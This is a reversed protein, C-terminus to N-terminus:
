MSLAVNAAFNQVVLNTMNHCLPHKTGLDKIMTNVRRLLDDVRSAPNPQSESRFGPPEAALKRLQQAAAKPDDAAVIASVVAVGDLRRRRAQSKFMVRQINAAYIGGIAVTPVFKELGTIGELIDRVGATGLIANTNEKSSETLSLTPTAYVTGIGLYDAGAEVATVAEALSSVTVGIIKQSGLLQRATAIDGEVAARVINELRAKGLIATTSDTVLYLSYDIAM